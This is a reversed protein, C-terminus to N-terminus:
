KTFNNNANNAKNYLLDNLFEGEWIMFRIYNLPCFKLILILHNTHFEITEDKLLRGADHPKEFLIYRGM